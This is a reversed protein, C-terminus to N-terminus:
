PLAEANVRRCRAMPLLTGTKPRVKRGRALSQLPFGASFCFAKQPIPASLGTKEPKARFFAGQVPESFTFATVRITVAREGFAQIHKVVIM